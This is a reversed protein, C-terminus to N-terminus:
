FMHMIVIMLYPTSFESQTFTYDWKRTDLVCPEVYCRFTMRISFDVSTFPLLGHLRCTIYVEIEETRIRISGVPRVPDVLSVKASSGDDAETRLVTAAFCICM